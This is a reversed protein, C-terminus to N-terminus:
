EGRGFVLDLLAKIIKLNSKFSSAFRSQDQRKEIEIYTQIYSFGNELGYAALETGISNRSDFYGRRQYLDMSYGKLGCLPDLWNFRYRTYYMFLRESFRAPELRIGLVLDIGNRLEDVYQKLAEAKHQGDADFTIIANCNLEVAKVFGSNLAGDYGKNEKHSVLVAGANIAEQKTNDTSADNVVIVIGYKKASQVVNFITAEENFTPIVIAVKYKEM